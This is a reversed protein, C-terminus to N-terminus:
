KSKVTVNDLDSFVCKYVLCMFLLEHIIVICVM